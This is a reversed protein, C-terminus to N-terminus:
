MIRFITLVLVLLLAVLIFFTLINFANRLIFRAVVFILIGLILLYVFVPTNQLIDNINNELFNNIM